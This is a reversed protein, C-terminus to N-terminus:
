PLRPPRTQIAASLRAEVREFVGGAIVLELTEGSELTAGADLTMQLNPLTGDGKEHPIAGISRALLESLSHYAHMADRKELLSVASLLPRGLSAGIRGGHRECVPPDLAIAATFVLRFAALPKEIRDIPSIARVDQPRTGPDALYVSVSPAQDLPEGASWGELRLDYKYAGQHELRSGALDWAASTPLFPEPMKYIASDWRCPGLGLSVLTARQDIEIVRCNGHSGHGLDDHGAITHFRHTFPDAFLGPFVERTVRVALLPEDRRALLARLDRAGLLLDIGEVELALGEPVDPTRAVTENQAALNFGGNATQLYASKGTLPVTDVIM